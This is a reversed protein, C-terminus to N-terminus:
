SGDRHCDANAATCYRDPRALMMVFVADGRAAAFVFTFAAATVTFVTFM